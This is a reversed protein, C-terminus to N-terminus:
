ATVADVLAAFSEARKVLVDYDNSCIVNVVSEKAGTYPDVVLDMAGGFQGIVLDDWNGFIIASLNSGSGKTLNSPVNNSVGALYGNLENGTLRDWVFLGSGADLATKKLKGRVKSNTLYGLSGRDANADALASELDVLHNYTPAAGNTGGAVSGIGSTNLIGEPQNSSGSGNIAAIDLALAQAEILDKRVLAEVDLSSQNILRKSLKTYAALRKPSLTKVSTTMNSEGATANEAVWTAAAATDQIVFPLNGQLGSLYQAGMQVVMARAKLAEVFSIPGNEIFNGATAVTGATLTTRKECNLHSRHNLILSPIASGNILAGSTRAEKEGEQIMEGELGNLSEGLMKSRMVKVFSFDDLSREEKETIGVGVAAGALAAARQEQTKAIHIQQDLEKSRAEHDNWKQVEETNLGRNEKDAKAYLADMNEIVSAREEKLQLSKPKM